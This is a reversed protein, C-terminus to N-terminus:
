DPKEGTIGWILQQLPDPEERRFDVWRMGQLFLPLDPTETAEPLLVPVVPCKRRVFERLLAEEILRKWQETSTTGIFIAASKVQTIQAELERQWSVGPPVEWEEFWPLIGQDKLQEGYRRVAPKDEENCCLFVDFENRERKAALISRTGDQQSRSAERERQRDATRDMVRTLSAHLMQIRQEQDLLSITTKCIPCDLTTLGREKCLQIMQETVVMGCAGCVFIRRRKLREPLVKRQLHLQVYEEFHYRTQETAAEDFFLSLAGHGENNMELRLGCRGGISARYTVANKWLGDRKFMGGNALRVALTAYINLVPGDFTFVVAKKEPEPLDPDDRTSQAPFVLIDGERLILERSFLDEVMAILLMREQERDKLREEEPVFFDGRKVREEEISGFGEPEDRVVHILASAYADLLEPQLLVLNGFSLRKILGASELRGICTEFQARLDDKHGSTYTMLFLRYLADVTELVRGDEKEVILFSKIQQFLATSSIGPLEEWAITDIIAQKLAAIERGTRASTQFYQEVNVQQKLTEIRADSVGIGGRDVRAAVLFTKLPVGTSGRVGQAQQLARAWHFVGAFPDTESRADFVILAITVEDLHLQHIFRYGPQGALDWLLIERIETYQDDRFFTHEYLTWIHRGHTSETAAFPKGMLVLGLGSKGVGSDGVLVVKANRYYVAHELQVDDLAAADRQWIAIWNPRQDLTAFAKLTPHFTIFSGVPLNHVEARQVWTGANKQWLLLTGRSRRTDSFAFSALSQTDSSFALHSVPTTHGELIGTSQGTTIDTLHIAHDPASLALTRRDSSWAFARFGGQRHLLIEPRHVTEDIREIEWQVVANDSFSILKQGDDSFSILKQGDFSWFLSNIPRNYGIVTSLLSGEEVHWLCVTHDLSGSALQKGDPSWAVTIVPETHQRLSHLLKGTEVHWLCVTHDLSGSALQKGDPSWVISWPLEAHSSLTHLLTGTESQWLHIDGNLSSTALLQGDLSWVLSWILAQGGSLTHLLIGTEANWLQITGDSDACALTRGDPSWATTTIPSTSTLTHQLTYALSDTQRSTHRTYFWTLTAAIIGTGALLIALVSLTPIPVNLTPLPPQAAVVIAIMPLVIPAIIFSCMRTRTRVRHHYWRTTQSAPNKTPHVPRAAAHTGKHEPM